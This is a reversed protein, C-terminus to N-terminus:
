SSNQHTPLATKLQPRLGISLRTCHRQLTEKLDIAIAQVEKCQVQQANALQADLAKIITIFHLRIKNRRIDDRIFAKKATRAVQDILNLNYATRKHLMQPIRQLKDPTDPGSHFLTSSDPIM